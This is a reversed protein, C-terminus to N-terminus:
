RKPPANELRVQAITRECWADDRGSVSYAESEFDDSGYGNLVADPLYQNIFTERGLERYQRVHVLEHILTFFTHDNDFAPVAVLYPWSWGDPYGPPAFLRDYLDDQMIVLTGLTIASYGDKPLDLLGSERHPIVRVNEVDAQTYFNDFGPMTMLIRAIGALTPPLPRANCELSDLYAGVHKYLFSNAGGTSLTVLDKDQIRKNAIDAFLKEGNLNQVGCYVEGAHAVYGAAKVVQEEVVCEPFALCSGPVCCHPLVFCGVTGVDCSLQFDLVPPVVLDEILQRCINLDQPPPLPINKCEAHAAGAATLLGTLAIVGALSASGPSRLSGPRALAVAANAIRPGRARSKM